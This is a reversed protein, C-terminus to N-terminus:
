LTPYHDEQGGARAIWDMPGALREGGLAVPRARLMKPATGSRLAIHPVKYFESCQEAADGLAVAFPVFLIIRLIRVRAMTEVPRKAAAHLVTSPAPLSMDEAPM